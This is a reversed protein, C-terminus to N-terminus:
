AIMNLFDDETIVQISEIAEAKKLKSGAKGGAVLYNLNKSVASILKGGNDEVFQKAESRGMKNLTGTFLFTQGGLKNSGEPQEEKKLNIGLSEFNKIMELNAEIQFFDFVSQAVKPGVDPLEQLAEQDLDKLDIVHTVAKMLVKATTLGVHRIGLGYLVREPKKAKSAEIGARLKEVSKEGWGEFLLIQEYDLSYIDEISSMLGMAYFRKVIDKGLGDIDMADKSVFHIMREEVQAPCEANVCRLVVEGEPKEAKTHCVPCHTPFDIPQESGDRLDEMAKVVYPIVDGAREILVTDGIHLDKQQIIDANHLSISSITVGALQTPSVKGVPTIAGTRGVQYEVDLLKTTAQKAKFKYAIAWRPHHATFGAKDQVDRQSAKIVMGDTEYAYAERKDEWFNIFQTVEEINQCVATEQEKQSPVRFGLAGLFDINSAHNVLDRHLLDNGEKDIAYGIQYIFADLGRARAEKPDKVRLGGAASNRANALEKEGAARRKENIGDFIDRRIVIEGRLEVKTIGRKSFEAILPISQITMVNKTVDEGAVGDGRTAARVLRDHEYLIAISSGDFKPEVVYEIQEEDTMERLKRDFDTLDEANYSNDLSLMPVTHTVTQFGEILDPSVRQTPSDPRLTEPFETELKRLQQFLQDYEFDSIIPENLVYYRYEHFQLTEVLDNVTEKTFSGTEMLQRSLGSLRLTDKESYKMRCASPATFIFFTPSRSGWKILGTLRTRDLGTM